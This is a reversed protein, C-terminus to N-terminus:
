RATARVRNVLSSDPAFLVRADQFAFLAPESGREEVEDMYALSIYKGDVYGEPYTCLERSFFCTTGKALRERHEADSVVIMVDVDSEPSEYGHALSGVLLLGIVGPQASFHDTTRQVTAAHHFIM